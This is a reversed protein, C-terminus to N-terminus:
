APSKAGPMLHGPLMPLVTQIPGPRRFLFGQVAVVGLARVTAFDQLTEVGEMITPVGLAPGLNIVARLVSMAQGRGQRLAVLFQRDIKIIDIPMQALRTLSSWGAGFDDVAIRIWADHLQSVSNIAAVDSYASETVEVVIRTRSLEWKNFQDIWATAWGPQAASVVSANLSLWPRLVGSDPWRQAMEQIAMTWIQESIQNILGFEEAPPIFRSPPLIVGDHTRLRALAEVGVLLGSQADYVGQYAPLLRQQDVAQILQDQNMPAQADAANTM